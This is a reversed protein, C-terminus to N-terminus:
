LSDEVPIGDEGGSSLISYTMFEALSCGPDVLISEESGTILWAWVPALVRQGYNKLYTFSGKDLNIKCTLIPRIEYTKKMETM